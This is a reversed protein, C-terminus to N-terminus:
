RGTRDPVRRHNRFWEVAYLIVEMPHGDHMLRGYSKQSPLPKLSFSRMEKRCLSSAVSYKAIGSKYSDVDAEDDKRYTVYYLM